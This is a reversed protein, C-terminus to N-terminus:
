KRTTDPKILLKEVKDCPVNSLGHGIIAFCLGSAANRSFMINQVVEYEQKKRYDSCGALLLLGVLSFKRM